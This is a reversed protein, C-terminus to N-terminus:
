GTRGALSPSPLAGTKTSGQASSKALLDGLFDKCNVELLSWVLWQILDGTRGAYHRDVSARNMTFSLERGNEDQGFAVQTVPGLKDVFFLIHDELRPDAMIASALKAEAKGPGDIKELAPGVINMLRATVAVGALGNVYGSRYTWGNITKEQIEM